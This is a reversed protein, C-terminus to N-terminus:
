INKLSKCLYDSKKAKAFTGCGNKKSELFINESNMTVFNSNMFGKKTKYTIYTRFAFVCM